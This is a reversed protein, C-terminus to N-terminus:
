TKNTASPDQSNLRQRVQNLIKDEQGQLNSLMAVIDNVKNDLDKSNLLENLEEKVLNRIITQTLKM